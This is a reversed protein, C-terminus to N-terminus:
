GFLFVKVLIMFIIVGLVWGGIRGAISFINGVGKLLQEGFTLLLGIIVLLIIGEMINKNLM